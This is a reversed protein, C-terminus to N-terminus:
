RLKAPTKQQHAQAPAEILWDRVVAGIETERGAFFHDANPLTVARATPPLKAALRQFDAAPCYNDRDGAVLFVPPTLEAAFSCDFMSLPPAVAAIGALSEDQRALGLAVVSGFSYGALFAKPLDAAQCLALVAARADHIEPRGGGHSGTSQGVGRFNFRLTAVGAENLARVIAVVVGSEMDGGYLPHPHCVVCGARVSAPVALRGELEIDEIKFRIATEM